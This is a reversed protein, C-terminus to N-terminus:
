ITSSIYAKALFAKSKLFLVEDQSVPKLFFSRSQMPIAEIFEEPNVESNLEKTIAEIVNGFYSSFDEANLQSDKTKM